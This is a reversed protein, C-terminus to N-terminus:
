LIPIVIPAPAPRRPVTIQLIGADYTAAIGEGDANAPLVFQRKFVGYHIEVLAARAADPLQPRTRFGEVILEGPEFHLKLNDTELGPAEVLIVIADAMEYVDVRPQWASVSWSSHPTELGHLTHLLLHTRIRTAM